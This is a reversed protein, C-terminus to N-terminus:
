KFDELLLVDRKGKSLQLKPISSSRLNDQSLQSRIPEYLKILNALLDSLM